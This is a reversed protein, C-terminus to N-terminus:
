VDSFRLLRLLKEFKSTLKLFGFLRRLTPAQLLFKGTESEPPSSARIVQPSYHRLNLPGINERRVQPLM